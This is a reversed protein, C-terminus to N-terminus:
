CRQAFVRAMQVVPQVGFAGSGTRATAGVGTTAGEFTGGGM